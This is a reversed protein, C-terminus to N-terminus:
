FIHWLQPMYIHLFSIHKSYIGCNHCIYIFFHYISLIYAVITAYGRPVGSQSFFNKRVFRQSRFDRSLCDPYINVFFILSATTLFCCYRHALLSPEVRFYKIWNLYHDNDRTSEMMLSRNTSEMISLGTPQNWSPSVQQNIGHHLSRNTSEMLSRNTTRDRIDSVIAVLSGVIISGTISVM